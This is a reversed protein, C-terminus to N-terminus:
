NTLLNNKMQTGLLWAPPPPPPPSLRPAVSADLSTQISLEQTRSPLLASALGAPCSTQFQPLNPIPWPPTALHQHLPPALRQHLPPAWVRTSEETTLRGHERHEESQNTRECACRAFCM